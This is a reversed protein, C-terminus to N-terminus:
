CVTHTVYAETEKWTLTSVHRQSNRARNLDMISTVSVRVAHKRVMESTNGAQSMLFLPILSTSIAVARMFKRVASTFMGRGRSFYDSFALSDSSSFVPM